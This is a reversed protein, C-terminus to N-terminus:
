PYKKLFKLSTLLLYSGEFKTAESKSWGHLDIAKEILDQNRCMVKKQILHGIVPLLVYFTTLNTICTLAKILSYSRKNDSLSNNMKLKAHITHVADLFTHM